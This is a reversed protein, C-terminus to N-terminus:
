DAAPRVDRKYDSLEVKRLELDDITVGKALLSVDLDGIAAAAASFGEAEAVLFELAEGDVNITTKHQEAAAARRKLENEGSLERLRERLQSAPDSLASPPEDESGTPLTELGRELTAVVLEDVTLREDEERMTEVLVVPATSVEADGHLL